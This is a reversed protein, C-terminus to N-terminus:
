LSQAIQRAEALLEVQRQRRSDVYIEDLVSELRQVKTAKVVRWGDRTLANRVKTAVTKVPGGPRTTLASAITSTPTKSSM